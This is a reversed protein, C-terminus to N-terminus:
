TSNHNKTLFGSINCELLVLNNDKSRVKVIGVCTTNDVHVPTQPQPHGMQCLNLQLTRAEQVNLFLAGLEAEAASAAVLKLIACTMAINGNLKIPTGEKPVSELFFIAEQKTKGGDQQYTCCIPTFM